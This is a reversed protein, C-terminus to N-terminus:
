FINIRRCSLNKGNEGIVQGHHDIWDTIGVGAAGVLGNWGGEGFKLRLLLRNHV